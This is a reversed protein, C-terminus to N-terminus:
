ASTGGQKIAKHDEMMARAVILSQTAGSLAIYHVTLKGQFALICGITFFWFAFFTSRGGFFNYIRTM